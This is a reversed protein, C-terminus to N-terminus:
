IERSSKAGCAPCLKADFETGCESCVVVAASRTDVEKRAPMHASALHEVSEMSPTPLDNPVFAAFLEHDLLDDLSHGAESHHVGPLNSESLTLPAGHNRPNVLALEEDTSIYDLMPAGVVEGRGPTEFQTPELGQLSSVDMNRGTEHDHRGTEVFSATEGQVGPSPAQAAAQAGAQATPPVMKQGVQALAVQIESATPAPLAVAGYDFRQTCYRCFPEGVVVYQNCIPCNVVRFNM